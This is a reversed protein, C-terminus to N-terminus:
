KAIPRKRKAEYAEFNEKLWSFDSQELCAAMKTLRLLSKNLISLLEAVDPDGDTNLSADPLAALLEPSDKLLPALRALYCQCIVARDPNREVCDAFTAEGGAIWRQSSEQVRQAWAEIEPSLEYYDLLTKVGSIIPGLYAIVEHRIFSPLAEIFEGQPKNWLRELHHIFQNWDTLPPLNSTM